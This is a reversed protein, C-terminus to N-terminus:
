KKDNSFEKSLISIIIGYEQPNQIVKVIIKKILM